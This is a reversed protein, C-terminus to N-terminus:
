SWEYNFSVSVRERGVPNAPVEHRLWSEFLYFRGPAPPLSVFPHLVTPSSGKRIPCARKLALRPDEVKLSSTGRPAAVYYTGSMVCFPHNHMAHRTNRAMRSVWCTTMTLKRGRLKWGLAAAYRKAHPQLLRELEEFAPFRRHLDTVSGYSTYGGRYNKTSWRRGADDLLELGELDSLIRRNLATYQSTFRGEYLHTPFLTHIAM